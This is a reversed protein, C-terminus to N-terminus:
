EWRYGAPPFDAAAAAASTPPNLPVPPLPPPPPQPAQVADVFGIGPIFRLSMPSGLERQGLYRKPTLTHTGNPEQQLSFVVPVQDEVRNQLAFALASVPHPLVLLVTVEMRELAQLFSYIRQFLQAEQSIAVWPLVPDLVVRHIDYEAVLEQFSAFGDPPLINPGVSTLDPLLDEYRRVWLRRSQILGPLDLGAARALQTTEEVRRTTLLLGPGETEINKLLYYIALPLKGSGHKGICLTARNRYIGGFRKDFPPIGLSVPSLM